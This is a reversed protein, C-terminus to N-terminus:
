IGSRPAGVARTTTGTWLRFSSRDDPCAAAALLLMSMITLYTNAAKTAWIDCGTSEMRVPLHSALCMEAPRYLAHYWARVNKDWDFDGTVLAEIVEIVTDVAEAVKEAVTQIGHWVTRCADCVWGWFGLVRHGGRSEGHSMRSGQRGHVISRFSRPGNMRDPACTLMVVLPLVLADSGQSTGADMFHHLCICAVLYRCSSMYGAVMSRLTLQPM